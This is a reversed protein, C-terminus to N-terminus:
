RTQASRRVGWAGLRNGGLYLRESPHPQYLNIWELIKEYDRL